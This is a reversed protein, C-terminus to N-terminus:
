LGQGNRLHITFTSVQRLRGDPTPTFATGPDNTSSFATGVSGTSSSPTKGFPFYTPASTTDQTSSPASRLVMGIRLARV